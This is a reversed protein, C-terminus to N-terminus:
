EAWFRRRGICPICMKRYTRYDPLQEALNNSRLYEFSEICGKELGLKSDTEHYSILTGGVDFIIAKFQM